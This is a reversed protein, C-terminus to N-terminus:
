PLPAVHLKPPMDRSAEEREKGKKQGEWRGGIGGM